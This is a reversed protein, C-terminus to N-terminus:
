LLNPFINQFPCKLIYPLHLPSCSSNASWSEGCLHAQVRKKVCSDLTLNGCDTSTQSCYRRSNNTDKILDLTLASMHWSTYAVEHNRRVLNISICIKNELLVQGNQCHYWGPKHVMTDRHLIPSCLQRALPTNHLTPHSVGSGFICFFQLGSNSSCYNM